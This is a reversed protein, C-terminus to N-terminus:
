LSTEKLLLEPAPAGEGQVSIANQVHVPLELLLKELVFPQHFRFPAELYSMRLNKQNKPGM